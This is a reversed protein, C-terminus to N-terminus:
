NSALRDVAEILRDVEEETTYCACGARLLGGPEAGLRRTVSSAYFDGHSLFLGWEDSLLAAAEAPSSGEITFSVTPTRPRGRRPGFLRVGGIDGLGDLLRNVLIEGRSSLGALAGDLATARDDGAALSAIFDVAAETGAIGEHNLTGTEWREPPADPAPALKPPWVAELLEHRGWLVGVHPGYFKYASCALFDCGLQGVNVREHPAFHVADVFTLAGMPAALHRVRQLDVITGLANSAATVAVLRTRDSLISEFAEWDLDGSDPDLPVTHVTLGREVELDRWPSINADHDLETVVVEDGPGWSRGLARALHFTLSTMNPGFVIEAPSGGVYDAAAARAREMMEDLERSTAFAWHANANHRLLQDRVADAVASTVQTGGPADFHAVPYGAVDRLLAPFCSRIYEVPKVAADPTPMRDEEVPTLTGVAQLRLDCAVVRAPPACRDRPM